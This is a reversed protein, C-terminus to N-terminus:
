VDQEILERVDVLLYELLLNFDSLLNRFPAVTVVFSEVGMLDDLKAFGLTMVLVLRPVDPAVTGLSLSTFCRCINSISKVAEDRSDRGDLAFSKLLTITFAVDDDHSM